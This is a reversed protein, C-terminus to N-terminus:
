ISGQRRILGGWPSVMLNKLSLACSYYLSGMNFKNVYKSVEGVKFNNINVGFEKM